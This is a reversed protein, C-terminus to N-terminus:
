EGLGPMSGAPQPVGRRAGVGGSRGHPAADRAARRRAARARDRSQAGRDAARRARQGARARRDRGDRDRRARVGRRQGEGGLVVAGTVADRVCMPFAHDGAFASAMGALAVPLADRAHAGAGSRRRRRPGAGRERGSRRAGRRSRRRRLGGRRVRRHARRARRARAHGRRASRHHVRGRARVDQARTRRRPARPLLPRRHVRRSPRPHRAALFRAGARADARAVDVHRAVGQRVGDLAGVGAGHVRRHRHRLRRRVGARPQDVFGIDVVRHRVIAYGLGFPLAILTLPLYGIWEARVHRSSTCRSSSCRGPSASASSCGVGLARAATPAARVCTRSGSRRRHDRRLLVLWPYSGIAVAAARFRARLVDYAVVSASVSRPSCRRCSTTRGASSAARGPPQPDPFTVALEVACALAACQVPFVVFTALLVCGCRCGPRPRRTLLLGFLLLIAALARDAWRRGGCRSCHAWRSSRSDIVGFIWSVPLNPAPIFTNVILPPGHERDFCSGTAPAAASSGCGSPRAYRRAASRRRRRPPGSRDRAAAILHRRPVGATRRQPPCATSDGTGSSATPM